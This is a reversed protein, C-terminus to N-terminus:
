VRPEGNKGEGVKRKRKGKMVKNVEREMEREQGSREREGDEKGERGEM